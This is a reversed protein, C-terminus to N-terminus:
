HDLSVASLEAQSPLEGTIMANYLYVWRANLVECDYREYVHARGAEGMVPWQEHQGAMQAIADAIAAPDKEPLLIGSVGPVFAEPIGGVQTAIVPMGVAQAELVAGGLAEQAGDHTTVGPFLCIHATSMGQKVESMPVFGHFTVVDELGLEVTLEQLSSRLPGDGFIDWHAKVGRQQAIAMGRLGWEIGKVEVLRAATMMRLIGDEAMTRTQFTFRDIPLGIPLVRLREEPAGLALIQQRMFKSSVCLCDAREFLRGYYDAGFKKPLVNLDFGLFSTVLPADLQGVDRLMQARRGPPGFYAHAVDFDSPMDLYALHRIIQPWGMGRVGRTHPLLKALAVPEQLLALALARLLELKGEKGSPSWEPPAHVHELFRHTTVEEHMREPYKRLVPYLEVDVGSLKLQSMHWLIYTESFSPFSEMFTAVKM